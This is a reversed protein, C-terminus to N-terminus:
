YWGSVSSEIESHIQRGIEEAIQFPDAKTTSTFQNGSVQIDNKLEIRPPTAQMAINNTDKWSPTTTDLCADANRVTEYISRETNRAGSQKNLQILYNEKNLKNTNFQRLRNQQVTDFHKSSNETFVNKYILQQEYQRNTSDNLTRHDYNTIQMSTQQLNRNLHNKEESNIKKNTLGAKVIWNRNSTIAESRNLESHAAKFVGSEISNLGVFQKEVVTNNRINMGANRPLSISSKSNYVSNFDNQKTKFIGQQYEEQKILANSSRQGASEQTTNKHNFYINKQMSNAYQNVINEAARQTYQKDISTQISSLGAQTETMSEKIPSYATNASLKQNSQYNKIQNNIMQNMVQYWQTQFNIKQQAGRMRSSSKEKESNKASNLQEDIKEQEIDFMDIPKWVFANQDGQNQQQAKKISYLNNKQGISNRLANIKAAYQMSLLQENYAIMSSPINKIKQLNGAEKEKM